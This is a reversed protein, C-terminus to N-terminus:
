NYSNIIKQTKNFYMAFLYKFLINVVIRSKTKQHNALFACSICIIINGINGM